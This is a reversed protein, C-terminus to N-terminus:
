SPPLRTGNGILLDRLKGIIKLSLRYRLVLLYKRHRSLLLAVAGFLSQYRHIAHNPHPGLLIDAMALSQLIAMLSKGAGIWGYIQLGDRAINRRKQVPLCHKTKPVEMVDDAIGRLVDGDDCNLSAAGQLYLAGRKKLGPM